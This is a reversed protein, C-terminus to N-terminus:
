AATTGRLPIEACLTTGRGPPSTITLEGDLAAIRDCLGALGTGDVTPAAGGVGDDAVAVTVLGGALTLRVCVERARAHKTANTLAESVFFYLSAEMPTPLRRGLSDEVSVPVPLRSALADVAVGLGRDTLIGPHIGAALDRLDAIGTKAQEMASRRLTAAAAPDSGSKREALQLTLLASVFQQQAGDHLDRTLQARAADAAEIM